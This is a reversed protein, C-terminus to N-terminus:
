DQPVSAPSNENTPSVRRSALDLYHKAEVNAANLAIVRQLEKVAKGYEQELWYVTGLHLEAEELSPDDQLADKFKSEANAVEGQRSLLYGQADDSEAEPLGTHIAWKYFQTAGAADNRRELTVAMNYYAEAFDPKLAIARRFEVAARDVNGDALYALGLSNHVAPSKPMYELTWRLQRIAEPWNHKRAAELGLQYHSRGASQRSPAADARYGALAIGLVIAWGAM